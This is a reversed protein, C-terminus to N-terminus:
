FRFVIFSIASAITSLSSTRLPDFTPQIMRRAPSGIIPADHAAPNMSVADLIVRDDSARYSFARSTPRAKESTGIRALKHGLSLDHKAIAVGADDLYLTQVYTVGDFKALELKSASTATTESVSRSLVMGSWGSDKSHLTVVRSPGTTDVTFEYEGPSLVMRGWHTEVPLKFTGHVTEAGAVASFLGVACVALLVVRVAFMKGNPKM